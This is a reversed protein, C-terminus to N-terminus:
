KAYRYYSKKEMKAENYVIGLVNAEVLHLQNLMKSVMRYKTRNNRVVLVFGDVQKSLLAADIVTTVPPFDLVICDYRKRLDELLQSIEKSELLRTSDPAVTGAPIVDIPTDAVHHVVEEYKNEGALYNSLGPQGPVGLYSAISPLRMDCDILITKKDAQGFAIAVNMSTTSKGESREASTIGICKAVAGPLSFTINTRLAKYAEQMLFPSEPGLMYKNRLLNSEKVRNNTDM